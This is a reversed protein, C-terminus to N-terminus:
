SKLLTSPPDIFTIKAGSEIAAHTLKRIEEATKSTSLMTFGLGAKVVRLLEATTKNEFSM